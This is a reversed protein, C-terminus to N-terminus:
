ANGGKGDDSEGDKPPQEGFLRAGITKADEKQKRERAKRYRTIPDDKGKEDGSRM